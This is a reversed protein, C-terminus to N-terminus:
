SRGGILYAHNELVTRALAFLNAQGNQSAAGAATGPASWSAYSREEVPGDFTTRFLLTNAVDLFAFGANKSALLGARDAFLTPKGYFPEGKEYLCFIGCNGCENCLYDVHLIQLVQRFPAGAAGGMTAQVPVAFNARNPCVETCRLCATGCNLCRESERELFRPDDIPLSPLIEGRRALKARDPLPPRQPPPPPPLGAKAIMAYAARRGDAEAAIISAPGRAADGGVYLNAVGSELTDANVVPRGDKGVAVKLSELFARDPVEGVAAILLECPLAFSEDSKIPARRGSADKEGLKMKRLVLQSVAGGSAPKAAEPLTLDLLVAAHTAAGPAQTSAAHTGPLAGAEKMANEYEERDAPMEVRTRRYSLRVTQVGPIRSAVRVADMATNGGGAVVVHRVGAFPNSVGSLETASVAELFELADVVRVGSGSLPLDRPVPAGSGVFFATFGQSKLEETSKITAKFRFEAGLSRIRAVDDALEARAIRFRPIVNAPVGGPESAKDFVTVPVGALALRHACALGAPGAGIVAVKLSTRATAPKDAFLQKGAGAATVGTASAARSIALKAARIEVPGEYDNRACVPQCVHDCLVGTTFPLSNDALITQLAETYNGTAGLKLYSPVKQNVPCAQICPSSFCDYAPLAQAISTIGSKWEAKYEPRTLAAKALASLAKLQPRGEENTGGPVTIGSATKRSSAGLNSAVLAAVAERAVPIMRLYGGPKLIDTAITLPGAGAGMLERANFASVGGCYSFRRPFDPFAGALKEALRITLPFLARGSMYREGGPLFAGDNANALTNSLKVGFLRGNKDACERLSKVLKLADAWQLDHEFNERTLVVNTWGNADLIRRAEDFGLLTPNLKVYTDFGKEEILYRGIREIEAPPCGHMTSLTVSHIPAHPFHAILARAKARAAEGFAAAFLPKEVFVVLEALMSKWEAGPGSNMHSGSTATFTAPARMGEIYADMRAGKIGDLTYGVSMNFIFDEPKQSWIAALLKVAIWGRLYEGRADDLSLETSWETNHGEDLALICPKDIELSDNQQVTKLEFVRSGSIYSAVLNPAIQTHPGAAPGVPLSARGNMIRLGPSKAELAFVERFAEEPIGYISKTAVYEGAMRELLAELSTTGMVKSKM